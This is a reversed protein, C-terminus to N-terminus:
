TGRPSLPHSPIRGPGSEAAAPEARSFTDSGTWIGKWTERGDQPHPTRVTMHWVTELRTGDAVVHGVWSTISGHQAFSVTFAVLDELQFGSLEFTEELQSLGVNSKFTGRLEGRPGVIVQMMSGYQNFWRGEIQKM